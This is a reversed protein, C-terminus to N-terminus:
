LDGICKVDSNDLMIRGIHLQLICHLNKKVNQNSKKVCFYGLICNFGPNKKWIVTIHIFNKGQINLLTYSVFDETDMECFVTEVTSQKEELDNTLAAFKKVALCLKKACWWASWYFSVLTSMKQKSLKVQKWEHASKQAFHWFGFSLQLLKM